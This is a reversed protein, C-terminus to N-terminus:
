GSCEIVDLALIVDYTEDASPAAFEGLRFDINASAHQPWFRSAAPAIDFGVLRAAPFVGRLAHLVAGAGCGVDAISQPQLGADALMQAVLRAKWPSDEQDWTPNSALYAGSTYRERAVDDSM